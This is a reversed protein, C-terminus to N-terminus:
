RSILGRLANSAFFWGNAPREALRRTLYPYWHTGYPIYVRVPEGERVLRDQLDTRIGYLLQFEYRDRHIARSRLFRRADSIMVPDHTALHVTAGGAVLTATLRAFARDVERRHQFAVEEPELYAGKVVRVISGPGGIRHADAITRRLVAQLCIGVNPHRARVARYVDLTGQVYTSAEMDIMVLTPAASGNAAQLVRELNEEALGRSVDLGLQTLKVSINVDLDPAERLRKLARVYADTAEAAEAAGTVNEGLHDLMSAIGRADLGRAAEMGAEINDGAVFRLSFARGIRHETIMRRVPARETVWLTPGRLLTTM